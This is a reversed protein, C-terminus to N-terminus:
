QPPLYGLARFHAAAREMAAWRAELPLAQVELLRRAHETELECGTCNRLVYIAHIACGDTLQPTPPPSTLPTLPLQTLPAPAPCRWCCSVGLSGLSASGESELCRGQFVFGLRGRQAEESAAWQPNGAAVAGELQAVTDTPPLAVVQNIGMVGKVHVAIAPMSAPAAPTPLALAAAAGGASCGAAAGVEPRSHGPSSREMHAALAAAASAAATAATSATADAAAAAEALERRVREHEQCTSLSHLLLLMDEASAAVCEKGACEEATVPLWDHRFPLVKTGAFFHALPLFTTSFTGAPSSFAKLYANLDRSLLRALMCGPSSPALKVSPHKLPYEMPYSIQLTFALGAFPSPQPDGGSGPLTERMRMTLLCTLSDTAAVSWTCAAGEQELVEKAHGLERSVRNAAMFFLFLFRIPM